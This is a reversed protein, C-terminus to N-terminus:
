CRFINKFSYKPLFIDGPRQLWMCSVFVCISSLLINGAFFKVAPSVCIVLLWIVVEEKNVYYIYMIYSNMCVAVGFNKDFNIQDTHIIPINRLQYLKKVIIKIGRNWPVKEWNIVTITYLNDYSNDM